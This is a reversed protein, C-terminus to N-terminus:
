DGHIKRNFRGTPEWGISKRYQSYNQSVWNIVKTVSNLAVLVENEKSFITWKGNDLFVPVIDRATKGNFIVQYEDDMNHWCRIGSARFVIFTNRDGYKVGSGALGYKKLDKPTYAFNYGSGQKEFSEGDYWTTLGLKRHDGVGRIFGDKFISYASDKKTSHILWQNKVITPKELYRWTPMDEESFGESTYLDTLKDANSWDSTKTISKLVTMLEDYLIPHEEKLQRITKYGMIADEDGFYDYKITHSIGDNNIFWQIIPQEGIASIIEAVREKSTSDIYRRLITTDKDIFELLIHKMKIM